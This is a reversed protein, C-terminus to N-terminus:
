LAGLLFAALLAYFAAVLAFLGVLVWDVSEFRPHRDSRSSRSRKTM